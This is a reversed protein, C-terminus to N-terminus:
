VDFNEKMYDILYEAIDVQAQFSTHYPINLKVDDSMMDEYMIKNIDYAPSYSKLWSCTKIINLPDRCIVYPIQSEHLQHLIAYMMWKDTQTKWDPHYLYKFWDNIAQQKKNPENCKDFTIGYKKSIVENINTSILQPKHAFNRISSLSQTAHHYTIDDITFRDTTNPENITFEIRDSNTLGVLILEPKNEIATDIQVAIGGNSMGGRSYPILEYGLKDAVIESFHTGPHELVPSMYSDGCVILKKM